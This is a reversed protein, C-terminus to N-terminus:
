SSKPDFSFQRHVSLLKAYLQVVRPLELTRGLKSELLFFLRDSCGLAADRFYYCVTNPPPIHYFASFIAM